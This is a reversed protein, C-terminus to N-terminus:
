RVGGPRASTMLGSMRTWTTSPVAIKARVVNGSVHAPCWGTDERQEATEYVVPDGDAERTAIAVTVSAADVKPRTSAIFARTEQEGDATEWNAALPPGSAIALKKDPGFIGLYPLGGQWFGSDLSYPLTDLTGYAGLQDLSVGQTLWEMVATTSVTVISAEDVDTEYILMKDPTASSGDRSVYAFSVISRTPDFGGIVYREYGPRIDDLFWRTWKNKGVAQTGGSSPDFRYVGDSSMFYADLGRRVLSRPAILGRGRSVEDVQFIAPSGALFTFRSITRDQFVYASEGGLIGRVPGGAQATQLDSSATGPTWIEPQALGSWQVTLEDAVLGGLFVFDRVTTVYRARPPSGGLASFKTGSLIDFKQPVDGNNVALLLSGSTAFSWHEGAGVNYAGGSVRTVDDWAASSNLKYLKTADGAFTVVRGQNDLVSVAGACVNTLAGTGSIFSPFPIYGTASPICNVAQLCAPTNIVASDPRFPGFPIM